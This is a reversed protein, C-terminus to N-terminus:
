GHMHQTLKAQAKKVHLKFSYLEGEYRTVTKKDCIWIEKAAQSILRMDHSVLVVGGKFDNIMRALSDISEM